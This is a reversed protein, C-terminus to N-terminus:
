AGYLDEASYVAERMNGFTFVTLKHVGKEEMRAMAENLDSVKLHYSRIGEEACPPSTEILELGEPSISVGVYETDKEKFARDAYGM